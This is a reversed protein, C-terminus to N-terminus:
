QSNHNLTAPVGEIRLRLIHFQVCRMDAIDVVMLVPITWHGVRYRLRTFADIIYPAVVSVVISCM